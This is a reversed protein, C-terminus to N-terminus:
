GKETEEHKDFDPLWLYNNPLFYSVESSTQRILNLRSRSSFIDELNFLGELSSTLPFAQPQLLPLARNPLSSLFSLGPSSTCRGKCAAPQSWWLFLLNLWSNLLIKALSSLNAATNLILKPALLKTADLQAVLNRVLDAAKPGPQQFRTIGCNSGNESLTFISDHAPPIEGM